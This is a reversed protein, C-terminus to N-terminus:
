ASASDIHIFGTGLGLTGSATKAISSVASVTTSSARTALAPSCINPIALKTTTRPVNINRLASNFPSLIQAIRAFRPAAKILFAAIYFRVRESRKWIGITCSPTALLLLIERRLRFRMNRSRAQWQFPTDAPVIV